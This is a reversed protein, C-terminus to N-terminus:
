LEQFNFGMGSLENPQFSKGSLENIRLRNDVNRLYSKNLDSNYDLYEGSIEGTIMYENTDSDNLESKDEDLQVDNMKNTTLNADTNDAEQQLKKALLKEMYSNSYEIIGEIAGNLNDFNEFLIRGIEAPTICNGANQIIKIQEDSLKTDYRHEVIEIIQECNAFGLKCCIDIRGPRTFAKDLKDIFNTTMIVIRGPTELVGDFLNLLFSLSIKDSQKETQKQIEPMKFNSNMVVKKGSSIESITHKLREIEERMLLNDKILKQELNDEGRDLIVNCQCDIDELVYIRKNIPIIYTETKGNQTIHLQENYFLNELQTKSMNDSLHVNIIHRKLENAICKIVSTKGSGPNGSVMIGLTYPVGKNDYWDKNDRFFEVRRRILRIDSGFLNKFSRNTTFQKMRFHLTEPLKSRDVNNNSDKYVIPPLETFYYINNGLKNNMKVLYNNVIENLEKRLNEMDYTYSYMEIYGFGSDTAMETQSETMSSSKNSTNNDSSINDSNKNAVDPRYKPSNVLKAFLNKHIEIEESYNINFTGNQLLICKTHPFHTILDIIADSTPNRTATAPEIKVIISSKKVRMIKNSLTKIISNNTTQKTLYSNLKSLLLNIFSKLHIAISDIFSIVLMMIITNIFSNSNDNSSGNSNKFMLMTIAMSKFNDIMAQSNMNMNPVSGTMMANANM